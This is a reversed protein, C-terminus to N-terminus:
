IETWEQGNSIRYRVTNHINIVHETDLPCYGKRPDFLLLYICITYVIPAISLLAILFVTQPCCATQRGLKHTGKLSM